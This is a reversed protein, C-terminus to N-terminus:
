VVDVWGVVARTEQQVLALARPPLDSADRELCDQLLPLLPGETSRRGWMVWAPVACLM